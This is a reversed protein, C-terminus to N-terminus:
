SASTSSVTRHFTLTLRRFLDRTVIVDRIYVFVFVIINKNLVEVILPRELLADNERVYGEYEDRSILPANDNVDTLNVILPVSTRLGGGDQAEFTLYHTAQRERDLLTWDVDANVAVRVRGDIDM